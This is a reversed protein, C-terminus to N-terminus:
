LEVNILKWFKIDFQLSAIEHTGSKMKYYWNYNIQELVKLTRLIIKRYIKIDKGIGQIDSVIKSVLIFM